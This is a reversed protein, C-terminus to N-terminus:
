QEKLLTVISHPKLTITYTENELEITTDELKNTENLIVTAITGDTNIFSTVQLPTHNTVGIRKAGPRIYKSFHGIYYYSSQHTLTEPFINVIIPSDCLNNVHNPGGTNDLFLNWDIYGQCYNNFDGIM